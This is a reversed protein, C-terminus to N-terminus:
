LYFVLNLEERRIKYIAVLWVVLGFGLAYIYNHLTPFQNSLLPARLLNLIHAIPNYDLVYGIGAKRFMEPRFFVPSMFYVAQLVLGIFLHFDRFKTNVFASVIALPWAIAFLMPFSLLLSFSSLGLTGPKTFALWLVLGVFAILFQVYNTLVAKLPYIVIPLTKQKIYAESDIISSCGVIIARTLLDWM